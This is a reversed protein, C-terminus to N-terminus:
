NSIKGNLLRIFLINAPILVIQFMNISTILAQGLHAILFRKWTVNGMFILLYGFVM